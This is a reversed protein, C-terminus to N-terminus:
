ASMTPQDTYGKAGASPDYFLSPAPPDNLPANEAFRRPLDPNGLFPRGFTVLDCKGDGIVSRASEADYDGNFILTRGFKERAAANIADQDPHAEPQDFLQGVVELHGVGTENIAGFIRTYHDLPDSDSMENFAGTPSVRIGIREPAFVELLAHLIQLPFRLRNDISGGFDDTRHNTGDRLFSDPLYGNAAHLQVGDFGAAKAVTAAGRFESVIAAIESETLVHPTPIAQKGNPTHAQTDKLAVASPAVPGLGDPLMDSHTVRGAHYLQAFILGDAEHVADTVLKWGAQQQESYIGPMAVYGLGGPAVHTAETFILGAGSRQRYYEANLEHPVEGPLKARCRTMPSMLVRNKLTMPGLDHPKFLPDHSM